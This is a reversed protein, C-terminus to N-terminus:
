VGDFGLGMRNCQQATAATGRSFGMEVDLRSWQLVVKPDETAPAEIEGTKAAKVEASDTRFTLCRAGIMMIVLLIAKIIIIIIIIIIM